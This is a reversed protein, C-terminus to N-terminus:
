NTKKAEIVAAIVMSAALFSFSGSPIGFLFFIIALGLCAFYNGHLAPQDKIQQRITKKTM